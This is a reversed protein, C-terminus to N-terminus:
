HLRPYRSNGVWVMEIDQGSFATGIGGFPTFRIQSVESPSRKGRGGALGQVIPAPPPPSRPSPTRAVDPGARDQQGPQDCHVDRRRHGGKTVHDQGGASRLFACAWAVEAATSKRRIPIQQAAIEASRERTLGPFTGPDRRHDGHRNVHNIDAIQPAHLLPEGTQGLTLQPSHREGDYLAETAAQATRSAITGASSSAPPLV